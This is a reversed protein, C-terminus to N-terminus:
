LSDKIATFLVRGWARCRRLVFYGCLVRCNIVLWRNSTCLTQASIFRFGSINNVYCFIFEEFQSTRNSLSELVMQWCFEGAVIRFWERNSFLFHSNLQFVSVSWFTKGSTMHICLLSDRSISGNGIGTITIIDIFWSLM